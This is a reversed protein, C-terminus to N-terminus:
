NLCFCSFKAWCHAAALCRATAAAARGAASLQSLAACGDLPRWGPHVTSGPGEPRARAVAEAAHLGRVRGSGVADAPPQLLQVGRGIGVNHSPQKGRAIM